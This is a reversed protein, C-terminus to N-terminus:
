QRISVQLRPCFQFFRHFQPHFLVLYIQYPLAMCHCLFRNLITSSMKQTTSTKLKSQVYSTILGLINLVLQIVAWIVTLTITILVVMQILIFYHNQRQRGTSIILAQTTLISTKIKSPMIWYTYHGKVTQFHLLMQRFRKWSAVQSFSLRSIPYFYNLTQYCFDNVSHNLKCSQANLRSLCKCLYCKGNHSELLVYNYVPSSSLQTYIQTIVNNPIIQTMFLSKGDGSDKYNEPWTTTKIAILNKCVPPESAAWAHVGITTCTDYSVSLFTPQNFIGHLNLWSKLTTLPGLYVGRIYTSDSSYRALVTLNQLLFPPIFTAQWINLFDASFKFNINFVSNVPTQFIRSTFTLVIGFSGSGGGRMAWYLDSHLTENAILVSGNALAITM